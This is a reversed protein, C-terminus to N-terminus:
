RRRVAVALALASGGCRALTLRVAYRRATASPLKVRAAGGRGRDIEISRPRFRRPGFHSLAKYVAEKGVFLAALRAGEQRPSQRARLERRTFVKELFPRNRLSAGRFRRISEIDAGLGIDGPTNLRTLTYFKQIFHGQGNM